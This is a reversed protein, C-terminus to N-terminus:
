LVIISPTQTKSNEYKQQCPFSDQKLAALVEQTIRLKQLKGKM